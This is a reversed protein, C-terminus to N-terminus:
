HLGFSWFAPGAQGVDCISSREGGSLIASLQVIRSPRVKKLPLEYNIMLKAQLPSEGLAAMPLCADTMALINLTSRPKTRKGEKQVEVAEANKEEEGDPSSESPNPEAPPSESPDVSHQRRAHFALLAKARNSEVLDSHQM